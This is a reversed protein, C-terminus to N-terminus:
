GFYGEIAELKKEEDDIFLRSIAIFLLGMPIELSFSSGRGETIDITLHTHKTYEFQDEAM